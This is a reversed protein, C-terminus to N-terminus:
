SGMRSSCQGFNVFDFWAYYVRGKCYSCTTGLCMPEVISVTENVM